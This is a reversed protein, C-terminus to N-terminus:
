EASQNQSARRRDQEFEDSAGHAAFLVDATQVRRRHESPNGRQATTLQPRLRRVATRGYRNRGRDCLGIAREQKLHLALALARLHDHERARRRALALGCRSEVERRGGGRCAPPHHQQLEVQAM